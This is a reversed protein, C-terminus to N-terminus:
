IPLDDLNKKFQEQMEENTMNAYQEIDAVKDFREYSIELKVAEICAARIDQWLPSNKSFEIIRANGAKPTYVTWDPHKDDPIFVVIGNIYMSLSADLVKAKVRYAGNALQKHVEGEVYYTKM